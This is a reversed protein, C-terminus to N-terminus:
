PTAEPFLMSLESASLRFHKRYHASLATQRRASFTKIDEIAAEWMDFPYGWRARDAQLEEEILTTMRSLESQIRESTFTTQALVATREIFRSRLTKNTLVSSLLDSPYLNDRPPNLLRKITDDEIKRMSLDMDYLVWRWKTNPAKWFRVNGVDTNALFIQILAHDIFNDIDIFESLQTPFSDSRPNTTNLWESLEYFREPSGALPRGAGELLNIEEPLFGSHRAIFASSIKERIYYIGWYQGNVYLVSPTCAQSEVNLDIILQHIMADKLSSFPADQGSQRFVLEQFESHPLETFYPFHLRSSGYRDRSIVRLSKKRMGRSWGGFIKLGVLNSSALKGSSHLYTMQAPLETDAWFNAGRYPFTSRAKPGKSFLGETDDLFDHPNVAISVVPLSHPARVLYLAQRETGSIHADSFAKVRLLTTETIRLKDPFVPSQLTPSAGDLTYRLTIDPLPPMQIQLGDPYYGDNPILPAQVWGLLHHNNPAGPTPTESFRRLGDSNLGVSLGEPLYGQEFTDLPNALPDSFVITEGLSDLRFPAELEGHRAAEGLCPIVLYGWAPITVDPLLWKHPTDPDDSLGYDELLFEMGSNNYLEIWDRYPSNHDAAMVENIRIPFLNENASQLPQTNNPTGPTPTSFYFWDDAQKGLSFGRRMSSLDIQELVQGQPSSLQIIDQNSLKFNTHIRKEFRDKGSAFVLLHTQAPLIVNPFHWKDPKTPDDTLRFANLSLPEDGTNYLEIWDSAVGDEDLVSAAGGVFVETIELTPKMAELRA